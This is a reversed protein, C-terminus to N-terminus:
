LYPNFRPDAYINLSEGNEEFRFHVSSFPLPYGELRVSTSSQGMDIGMVEFRDGIKFGLERVRERQWEYGANLDDVIAIVTM